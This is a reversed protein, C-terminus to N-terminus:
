PRAHTDGLRRLKEDYHSLPVRHRSKFGLRRFHFSITSCCVGLWKVLEDYTYGYRWLEFIFEWQEDTYKKPETKIASTKETVLTAVLEETHTMNM